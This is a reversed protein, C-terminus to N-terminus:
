RTDKKHKLYHTLILYQANLIDWVEFSLPPPNLEKLCINNGHLVIPNCIIITKSDKQPHTKSSKHYMNNRQYNLKLHGGKSLINLFFFVKVHFLWLMVYFNVKSLICEFSIVVAYCLFGGKCFVKVYFLWLM